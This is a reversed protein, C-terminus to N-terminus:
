IIINIGGLMILSAPDQDRQAVFILSTVFILYAHSAWGTVAQVVCLAWVALVIVQSKETSLDFM